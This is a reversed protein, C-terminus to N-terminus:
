KSQQGNNFRKECIKLYTICTYASDCYEKFEEDNVLSEILEISSELQGIKNNFKSM